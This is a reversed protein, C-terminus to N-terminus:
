LGLPMQSLWPTIVAEEARHFLRTMSMALWYLDNEHGTAILSSHGDAM